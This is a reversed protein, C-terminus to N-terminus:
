TTLVSYFYLLRRTSKRKGYFNQQQYQSRVVQVKELNEQQNELQTKMQKSQNEELHRITSFLQPFIKFIIDQFDAVCVVPLQIQEFFFFIIISYVIAYEARQRFRCIGVRLKRSSMLLFRESCLAIRMSKERNWVSSCQRSSNSRFLLYLGENRLSVCVQCLQFFLFFFFFLFFLTSDTLLLDRSLKLDFLIYHPLVIQKVEDAYWGIRGVQGPCKDRDPRVGRLQRTIEAKATRLRPRLATCEFKFRLDLHLSALEHARVM